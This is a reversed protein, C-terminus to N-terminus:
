LGGPVALRKVPLELGAVMMTVNPCCAAVQQHLRGLEDVYRRAESSMPALGLGIENSVLVVPGPAARLAAGLEALAALWQAEDAAPGEMPMLWRTLWLTLCDVLLLTDPASRRGVAGALDRGVEEAELAPVRVARDAQHRRIRERMEDDGGLATALMVARHDPAQALWQAARLEGCRSKGSRQGGLIFESRPHM